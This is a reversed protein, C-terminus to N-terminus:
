KWKVEHICYTKDGYPIHREKIIKNGLIPHRIINTKEEDWRLDANIHKWSTSYPLENKYLTDVLLVEKIETYKEYFHKQVYNAWGNKNGMVSYDRKIFQNETNWLSVAMMWKLIANISDNKHQYNEKEFIHEAQNVIRCPMDGFLETQDDLDFIYIVDVKNEAWKFCYDLDLNDSGAHIISDHGGGFHRQWWGDSWMALMITTDPYRQRALEILKEHGRHFGDKAKPAFGINVFETNLSRQVSQIERLGKCNLTM